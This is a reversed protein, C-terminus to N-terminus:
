DELSALVKEVDFIEKEDHYPFELPNGAIDYKFLFSQRLEPTKTEPNAIINTHMSYGFVEPKNAIWLVTSPLGIPSDSSSNLGACAHQAFSDMLLRKSSLSLLTCVSRFNDTVPITNPLAPQDDRRIHAINFQGSFKNVVELAVHYPIDRAWSYKNAQNEAGGNTQLVMIPKDSAYKNTYFAKERDTLFIRPLEGNYQVGFMECWLQILHKDQKVFDTTFYPDNHFVEFEKGAIFDQYFYSLNGHAFCRDVNPNNLFVDPYGSIVILKGDPYQKKIAECVATAAICKGIGGSISFIINM